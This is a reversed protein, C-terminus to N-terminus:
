TVDAGSVVGDGNVDGPEFVPEPPNPGPITDPVYTSLALGYAAIGEVVFDIVPAATPDEVKAVVRKIGTRHLPNSEDFPISNPITAATTSTPAIYSWYVYEGDGVFQTVGTVEDGSGELLVPSDDILTADDVTAEDQKAMLTAMPIRYVGPTAKGEIRTQDDQLFFYLYGNEEDIYFSTMQHYRLLIPLALDTHSGGTGDTFLRSRDFRFIGLGNFKKAVWYVNNLTTGNKDIIDVNRKMMGAGIAGYTLTSGDYYPLYNNEMFFPQEGYLGVADIDMEHIGVNRDSIYIKKDDPDLTMTFPDQFAKYGVNNLVTVRYFYDNSKNVYFLEGDGGNAQADVGEYRWNHGAVAVYIRNKYSGLNFAHEGTRFETDIIDGETDKYMLRGDKTAFYLGSPCGLAAGEGSITADGVINLYQWQATEKFVDVSATAVKCEVNGQGANFVNPGLVPPTVNLVRLRKIAAPVAGQEMYNVNAGIEMEELSPCEGFAGQMINTVSSPMNVTALEPCNYCLNKPIERVGEGITLSEIASETFVNMGLDQTTGPITFDAVKSRYFAYNGISTLAPLEVTLFHSYALGYNDISEVDNNILEDGLEGEHASVLLRNGAANYLVGNEVKFSANGEALDIDALLMIPAFAANGITALSAPLTIKTINNAEGFANAGISRVADPIVVEGVLGSKYFASAGISTVTAPITFQTLAATGNFASSGISTLDGDIQVQSLKSCSLFVSESLSTVGAPIQVSRLSSCSAFASGGIATVKNGDEFSVTELKSCGIFMSGGVETVEGGIVLTKLSPMYHFPQQNYAYNSADVMRELVLEEIPPYLDSTAGFIQINFVIPTASAKITFKTIGCGEYEGNALTATVGAPLFAETIKACGQIMHQGLNTAAETVPYNELNECGRFCNNGFKKCTAPLYLHTLNKCDRFAAAEVGVVTYSTGTGPDTVTEPITIDGVYFATDRVTVGDVKTTTITYKNVNVGGTVTKYNIGDATFTAAHAVAFGAVLTLSLTLARLWSFHTFKRM